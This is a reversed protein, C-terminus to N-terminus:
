GSEGLGGLMEDMKNALDRKSSEFNHGYTDLTTGIRSYGAFEQIEKPNAGQAILMSIAIHRM